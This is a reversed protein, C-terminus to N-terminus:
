DDKPRESWAAYVAEFLAKGAEPPTARDAVFSVWSPLFSYQMAAIATDGAHMLEISESMAPDVWGTGTTTTVVLVERAWANTRDLETVVLAAVDDLEGGETSDLGAYVRIPMKAE